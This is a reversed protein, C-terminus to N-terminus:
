LNYLSDIKIKQGNELTAWLQTETIKQLDEKRCHRQNRIGYHTSNESEDLPVCQTKTDLLHADQFIVEDRNKYYRFVREYIVDHNISFCKGVEDSSWKYEKKLKLPEGTDKIEFSIIKSSHPNKQFREVIDSYNNVPTETIRAALFDLSPKLLFHECKTDEARVFIYYKKGTRPKRKYSNAQYWDFRGVYILDEQKKTKYVCGSILDKVRIKGAQLSTFEQAKQYEESCTPLLVLEQGCWAYVFDGCLGRKSCDTNMLVGILNETTIEFEFERPDHVRIMTRNSSFHSWNYRKIDKNLVLGSQPNNEIEIPEIKKDRWGEWSTEKRLKNKDDYYIIYALKGTFTDSRNQFGIKLKKPIYLQTNM